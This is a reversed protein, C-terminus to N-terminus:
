NADGFWKRTLSAYEGSERLRLLSQNIREALPSGSPLAMGYNEPLFARGILTSPVPPNQTVYYALIPADFVVADVEGREYAALMDQLGTFAVFNLDRGELFGAATSGSITAVRKDYLDNIGQVNNQIADVTLTATIKAVFISVIFLSSVVMITGLVRGLFTRPAVQEFGGNVILNLAWWFAPFNAKGATEDFYDHHRRELVWMIMGLLWLGGFAACVALLVDWRGLISWVSLGNNDEPVMIQLGSLYIPQTFDMVSERASTISINAIAGDAAGSEVAALMDGFVDVRTFEYDLQLDEAVARWLDISFGADQGNEVMSFPPRTITVINLPDSQAVGMMPMLLAWVLLLFRKM